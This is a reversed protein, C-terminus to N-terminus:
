CASGASVAVGALDLAIALETSDIGAFAVSTINPLRLAGSANIRVDEIAACLGTELRDRLLALRAAELPREAFALDLARAFGAVGAVNETGARRGAEQPGGVVLPVLAAGDRVYLLGVGKPGYCKHASLTMLDVGLTDVDLPIRGVAQVADTHFVVGQARALRAFDAIPHITGLENNALMLSAFVTDQRLARDFDEAAIRGESDVGLVTITFGRERLVDMAALVAVHETAATVVHAGGRARRAACAGGVIALTDSESGGSTFVIERSKAGLLRAITTRAADIAARAARGEAHLSSANFGHEGLHPLMAALVESRVPTTAAHDVYLRGCPQMM